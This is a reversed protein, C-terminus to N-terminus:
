LACAYAVCRCQIEVMRGCTIQEDTIRKVEERHMDNPSFPVQGELHRSYYVKFRFEFLSKDEYSWKGSFEWM